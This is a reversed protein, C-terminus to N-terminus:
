TAAGFLRPTYHSLLDCADDYIARAGALDDDGWGGCRVAIAAVGARRAAEVDYPTDGIMVAATPPVHLKALAAHLADPDPKSSEVDDSSTQRFILDAIGAVNLLAKLEEESEVNIMRIRRRIAARLEDKTKGVGSFIIKSPTFGAQLARNLEGGSVIDAGGGLRALVAGIALNSNAKLSYCILHPVTSFATEYSQFAGELTRRSYVYFPTKVRGAIKQVSVNEILLQRNKFTYFRSKV